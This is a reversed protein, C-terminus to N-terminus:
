TAMSTVTQLMLLPTSTVYGYNSFNLLDFTTVRRFRDTGVWFGFCSTLKESLFFSSSSDALYYIEYIEVYQKLRCYSYLYM